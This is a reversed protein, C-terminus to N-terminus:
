KEYYAITRFENTTKTRTLGRDIIMKVVRRKTWNGFQDFKDYDYTEIEKDPENYWWFEYKVENGKKDFEHRKTSILKGDADFRKEEMLSDKYIFTNLRSLAGRNDYVKEEVIRKSGDFKYEYRNEYRTDAPPLNSNGTGVVFGGYGSDGDIEESDSVRKGEIFGYVAVSTPYGADQFWFDKLLNGFRDYMEDSRIRREATGVLVPVDESEVRVSKVLGKLNNRSADTQKLETAPSQPLSKQTATEIRKESIEKVSFYEASDLLKSAEEIKEVYNTSAIFILIRNGELIYKIRRMFDSRSKFEFIEKDKVPKSPLSIVEFSDALYEKTNSNLISILEDKKIKRNPDDLEICGIDYIATDAAFRNITGEGLKRYPSYSISTSQAFRGPIPFRLGCEIQEFVKSTKEPEQPNGFGIQAFLNSNSLFILVAIILIKMQTKM